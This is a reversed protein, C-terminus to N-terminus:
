GSDGGEDAFSHCYGNRDDAGRMQRCNKQDRIDAKPRFRVYLVRRFPSSDLQSGDHIDEELPKGDLPQIFDIM